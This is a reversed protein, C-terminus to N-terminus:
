RIVRYRPPPCDYWKPGDIRCTVNRTNPMSVLYATDTRYNGRNQREETDPTFNAAFQAVYLIGQVSEVDSVFCGQEVPCETCRKTTQDVPHQYEVHWRRIETCAVSWRSNLVRKEGDCVVNHQMWNARVAVRNNRVRHVTRWFNAPSVSLSSQIYDKAALPTSWECSAIDNADSYLTECRVTKDAFSTTALADSICKCGIRYALIKNICLKHISELPLIFLKKKFGIVTAM